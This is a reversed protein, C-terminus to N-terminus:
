SYNTDVAITFTASGAPRIGTALPIKVHTRM